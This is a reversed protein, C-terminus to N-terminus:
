DMTKAPPTKNTTSTQTKLVAGVATQWWLMSTNTARPGLARARAHARAGLFLRM